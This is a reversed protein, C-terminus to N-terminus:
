GNKSGRVGRVIKSLPVEYKENLLREINLSEQEDSIAIYIKDYTYGKIKEPKIIEKGAYFGKKARDVFAEINYQVNLEKEFSKFFNGLGYVLAKEKKEDVNNTLATYGRWLEAFAIENACMNSEKSPLNYSRSGNRDLIAEYRDSKACHVGSGDCGINNILSRYPNICLGENEIIKLAWFVAWSDNQGKVRDIMQSELDNGWLALHQSGEKTKKLRQLIEYDREYKEWRDRWTSWGWSSFRGCFYADYENSQLLIPWNYGSISYISNDDKYKELCQSTFRIYGPMPVCDDELVIVAENEEFVKNIGDIISAALGKNYSAQYYVIECWDIDSIVQRTKEWEDRHEEDKLGDQFIYLKQPLITNERLGELVRKTHASRNYTFLITAIDM